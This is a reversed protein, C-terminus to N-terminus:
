GKLETIADNVAPLVQLLDGVIGYDAENFIPANPDKNIAIITGSNRMGIVHQFSGSVGVAIYLKPKVTKGSSGVLRDKPLWESDVVPRSCALVGGVAKALDEAMPMNKQEKIGRGIGILVDAKTIDVDGVEPEIYEIFRQNVPEAAPAELNVVEAELNGDEASWSGARISVMYSSSERFKVRANLKGDYMQRIPTITGETAEIGVCDTTFPIDLQIGLAPCLGMGFATHGMLTLFPKESSIIRALATQYAEANFDAFMAGDIVLLRHAHSKLSAVMAETGSGLLVASLRGDLEEALKRGCTLVEFSIDRIQGQRHEVLALIDAM